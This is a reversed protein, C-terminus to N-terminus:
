EMLKYESKGIHAQTRNVRSATFCLNFSWKNLINM